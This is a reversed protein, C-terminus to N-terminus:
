RVIPDDASTLAVALAFGDRIHRPYAWVGKFLLSRSKVVRFHLGVRRRNIRTIRTVDACDADPKSKWKV